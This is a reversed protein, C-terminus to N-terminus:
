VTGGIGSERQTVEADEGELGDMILADQNKHEKATGRVAIFVSVIYSQV